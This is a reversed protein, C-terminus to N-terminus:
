TRSLVFDYIKQYTSPQYHLGDVTDYGKKELYTYADLYRSGFADKLSQNFKKIKDNSAWKSAYEMPNVSLMYFRASPYDRILQRYYAIYNNINGLDNVGHALIVKADPYQVLYNKLTPGATSKLWAYGTSVQAIFIAESGSVSKSMGVTRSDGVFIYQGPKVSPSEERVGDKGIYYGGIYCDSAMTGDELLYYYNGGSMIWEDEVRRGNADLYYRKGDKQIWSSSLRRGSADVFYRGIFCDTLMVGNRNFYYYQKRLKLWQKVVCEGSPLLYYKKNKLTLWKGYRVSGEKDAYYKKSGITFWGTRVYGNSAARYVKDSVQIWASKVIEGDAKRYRIGRANEVWTGGSLKKAKSALTGEAASATGALTMVM